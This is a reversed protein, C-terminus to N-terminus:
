VSTANTNSNATSYFPSTAASETMIFAGSSSGDKNKKENAYTKIKSLTKPLYGPPAANSPHGIRSSNLATPM